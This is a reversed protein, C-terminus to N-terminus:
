YIPEEVVEEEEDNLPNVWESAKERLQVEEVTLESNPANQFEDSPDDEPEARPLAPESPCQSM